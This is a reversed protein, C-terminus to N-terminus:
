GAPSACVGLVKPLRKPAAPAAEHPVLGARGRVHLDGPVLGPKADAPVDEDSDDTPDVMVLDADQETADLTFDISFGDEAGTAKGVRM